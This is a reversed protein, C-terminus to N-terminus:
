VDSEAGPGGSKGPDPVVAPFVPDWGAASQVHKGSATAKADRNQYQPIAMEQPDTGAPQNINETLCFPTVRSFHILQNLSNIHACM